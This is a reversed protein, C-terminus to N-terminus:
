ASAPRARARCCSTSTSPAASAGSRSLAYGGILLYDVGEDHLSRLLQKLDDATAPRADRSM